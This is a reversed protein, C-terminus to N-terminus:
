QGDVGLSTPCIWEALGAFLYQVHLVNLHFSSGECSKGSFFCIIVEPEPGEDEDFADQATSCLSQHCSSFITGDPRCFLVAYASM